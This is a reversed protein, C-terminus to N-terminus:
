ARYIPYCNLRDDWSAHHRAFFELRAAADARFAADGNLKSEFTERLAPEAELVSRAIQEAVYPELYEKQQFCANFFGWAAFSDPAQPELLAAILRALPQAIPVFRALAAVERDLREWAGVITARMRGEFPRSSFSVQTARFQELEKLHAPVAAIDIGHCELRPVIQECYAHPIIYGLRPAQIVLAPEIRNRYPVRWIQPTSPDYVTVPAGSIESHNRTYAYGRFEVTEADAAPTTRATKGAASPERWSSQYDLTLESGGLACAALDAARTKALWAGGHKAALEALGVVTNRTVQVRRPYPKWSHTEVLVTFRNRQPFYGTSFRPSYVTLVFGSQPNDTEVLDPYFPLPLSGQRALEDILRDRLEKGSSRLAPDGQNIPEVQISIDPEFDAGDTVHLDACILPDWGDILALMAQMEPADAKTYDRNLNLNQATSRWGTMQPGNQNPRNWRGMREHGDTNFAPVFLVAIRELVGRAASGALLERLAIFGGDKGDSEGPHIGAQIMLIPIGRDRLEQPSLAGCRSAVLARMPRGEASRGFEFARVAEPWEAQMLTSLREVEEIRGTELFGSQEALTILLPNM